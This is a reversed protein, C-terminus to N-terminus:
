SAKLINTLENLWASKSHNKVCIERRQKCLALVSQEDSKLFADLETELNPNHQNSWTGMQANYEFNQTVVPIGVLTAELLAKDLSGQYAHLFFDFHELIDPISSRNVGGALHIVAPNKALSNERLITNIYRRGSENSSNGYLTIEFEQGGSILGQLAAVMISINKSPDLRGISIARVREGTPKWRVSFVEPDIAQGIARVKQNICPRFKPISGSTSTVIQNVFYSAINLQWSKKKHAYWLVQRIRLLRFLPSLIAAHTDVMHFFVVDPRRYRLAKFTITILKFVKKIRPLSRFKMDLIRLNPISEAYNSKETVVQTEGFFTSLEIAISKQHALLSDESDM